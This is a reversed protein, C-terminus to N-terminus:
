IVESCDLKLWERGGAVAQLGHIELTKTTSAKYPIWSGRMQPTLDARYRLTVTYSLKAGIAAAQLQERMNMPVISAWVTALETFAAARGGQGDATTTKRLITFRETLDSANM